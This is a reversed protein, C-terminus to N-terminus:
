SDLSYVEQSIGFWKLPGQSNQIKEEEYSMKRPLIPTAMSYKKTKPLGSTPARDIALKSPELKKKFANESFMCGEDDTSLSSFALQESTLDGSDLDLTFDDYCIYDTNSRPRSLIKNTM